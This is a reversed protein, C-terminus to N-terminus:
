KGAAEMLNRVAEQILDASTLHQTADCYVVVTTVEYEKTADRMDLAVQKVTAGSAGPQLPIGLKISVQPNSGDPCKVGSVAYLTGASVIAPVLCLLGTLITRKM